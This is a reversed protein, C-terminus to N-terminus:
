GNVNHPQEEQNNMQIEPAQIEGDLNDDTWRGVPSYLIARLINGNNDINIFPYVLGYNPRGDCEPDIGIVFYRYGNFAVNDGFRINGGEPCVYNTQEVTECVPVQPEQVSPAGAACNYIVLASLGTLIEKKMNKEEM